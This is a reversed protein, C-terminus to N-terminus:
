WMRLVEGNGMDFRVWIVVGGLPVSGSGDIPVLRDQRGGVGHDHTDGM